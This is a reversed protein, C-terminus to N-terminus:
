KRARCFDKRLNQCDSRSDHLATATRAKPQELFDKIIGRKKKWIVLMIEEEQHTLKEM